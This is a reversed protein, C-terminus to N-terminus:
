PPGLPGRPGRRAARFPDRGPPPAGLGGAALVGVLGRGGGGGGVCAVVVGGGVGVAAVVVAPPVVVGDDLLAPLGAGPDVELGAASAPAAPLGGAGPTPGHSQEM